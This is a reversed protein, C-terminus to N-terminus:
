LEDNEEGVINLSTYVTADPSVMSEISTSTKPRITVGSKDELEVSNLRLVLTADPEVIEVKTVTYSAALGTSTNIFTFSQQDIPQAYFDSLTITNTSGNSFYLKATMDPTERTSLLVDTTLSANESCSFMCLCLWAVSLFRFILNM